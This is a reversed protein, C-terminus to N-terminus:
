VKEKIRDSEFYVGPPLDIKPFDDNIHYWGGEDDNGNNGNSRNRESNETPKKSFIAWILLVFSTTLMLFIYSYIVDLM